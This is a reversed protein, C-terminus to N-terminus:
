HKVRLLEAGFNLSRYFIDCWIRLFFLQAKLNPLAPILKCIELFKV